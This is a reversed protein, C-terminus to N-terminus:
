GRKRDKWARHLDMLNMSLLSRNKGWSLGTHKAVFAKLEEETGGSVTDKEVMCLSNKGLFLYLYSDDEVLRQFKPYPIKMSGEGELEVCDEFFTCVNLPLAGKRAELARDARLSPPFDRSVLLWCGLMLMIARVAMPLQLLFPSVVLIAGIGMRSLMRMTEYTYYQTQYLRQITEETHQVSGVFRGKKAM